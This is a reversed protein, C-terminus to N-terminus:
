QELDKEDFSEEQLLRFEKRAEQAARSIYTSVSSEKINLVKAIERHKFNYYNYLIFCARPKESVHALAQKVMEKIEVEKYPDRVWVDEIREKFMEWPLWKKRKAQRWHDMIVHDAIRYLWAQFAGPTRLSLINRHMKLFVEQELDQALAWDDISSLIRNYLPKEYRHYIEEFAAKSQATNGTAMYSVLDADSLSAPDLLPDQRSFSM